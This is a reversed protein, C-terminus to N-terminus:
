EEVGYFWKLTNHLSPKFVTNHDFGELVEYRLELKDIKANELDKVAQAIALKFDEWELTGVSLYVKADLKGQREKFKDLYFKIDSEYLPYRAAPSGIYYSTYTNKGITDAHYMSYLGWLGGFSHGTLTVQQEDVSYRNELFPVLNDTLFQLYLDPHGLFERERITKFDYTDPYGVSVLIVPKIEKKQTYMRVEPHDGLRWVGDTMVVLPYEKTEDYDVPLTIHVIFTDAIEADYLSMEMIYDAAEPYLEQLEKYYPHGKSLKGMTISNEEEKQMRKSASVLEKDAGDYSKGYFTDLGQILAQCKGTEISWGELTMTIMEITKNDKVSNYFQNFAKYRITGEEDDSHIMCLKAMKGSATKVDSAGDPLEKQESNQFDGAYILYNEYTGEHSMEYAAFSGGIGMGCLTIKKEDASYTNEIWPIVDDQLLRHFDAAAIDLDSDTGEEEMLEVLIAQTGHNDASKELAEYQLAHLNWGLLITLPYEKDERYKEPLTICFRYDRKLNEDHFTVYTGSDQEEVRIPEALRKTSELEAKESVQAGVGCGALCLAAAMSVLFLQRILRPKGMSNKM